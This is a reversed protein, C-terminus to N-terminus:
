NGIPDVNASAITDLNTSVNVNVTSDLNTNLDTGVILNFGLKQSVFNLVYNDNGGWNLYDNDSMTLFKIDYLNQSNDYLKVILNASTFLIVQQVEVSFSSISTIKQIEYPQISCKIENNM